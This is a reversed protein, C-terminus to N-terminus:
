KPEVVKEWAGGEHVATTDLKDLRIRKLTNDNGLVYRYTRTDHIGDGNRICSKKISEILAKNM